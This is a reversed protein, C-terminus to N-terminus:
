TNRHYLGRLGRDCLCYCSTKSSQLVRLFHCSEYCVKALQGSTPAVTIGWLFLQAKLHWDWDRLWAPVLSAQMFFMIVTSQGTALKVCPIILTNICHWWLILFRDNGAKGKMIARTQEPKNSFGQAGGVCLVTFWMSFWCTAVVWQTSLWGNKHNWCCHHRLAKSTYVCCCRVCWEHQWSPEKISIGWHRETSNLICKTM